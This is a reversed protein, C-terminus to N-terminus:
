AKTPLTLHTYSVPAAGGEARAGLPLGRAGLLSANERAGLLGVLRLGLLVGDLRLNKEARPAAAVGTAAAEAGLLASDGLRRAEM